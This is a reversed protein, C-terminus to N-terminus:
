GGIDALQASVYGAVATNDSTTVPSVYKGATAVADETALGLETNLISVYETMADLWESALAYDSGEEPNEMASAIMAMQEESPPAGAAAYENVVKALAAIRSGDSDMLIRAAGQLRACTDCPQVDYTYGRANAFLVQVQEANVGLEGALWSTLAPCGAIKIGVPEQIPAAEGFPEIDDEPGELVWARGDTIEPNELGAGRMVYNYNEPLDLDEPFPLRGVADDLWETIRSAVELRDGVDGATLSSKFQDGLIVKDYADAVMAGAAGPEQEQQETVETIAITPLPITSSAITVPCDIEVSGNRSATYIALDFAVGPDRPVGAPIEADIDLFGIGARDDVSWSGDILEPQYYRGSADLRGDEGIKLPEASVIAIAALAEDGETKSLITPEGVDTYLGFGYVGTGALEDSSGTVSVDLAGDAGDTYIAGNESIIAVGGTEGPLESFFVLKECDICDEGFTTVDDSIQIDEQGLIWLNGRYTSTGPGDDNYRLDISIESEDQSNGVLYM